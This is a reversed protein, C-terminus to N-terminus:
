LFRVKLFGLWFLTEASFLKVPTANQIQEPKSKGSIIMFQNCCIAILKKVNKVSSNSNSKVSKKYFFALILTKICILVCFKLSHKVARRLHRM